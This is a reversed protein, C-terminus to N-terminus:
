ASRGRDLEAWVETSWDILAADTWTRAVPERSEARHMLWAGVGICCLGLGALALVTLYFETVATM